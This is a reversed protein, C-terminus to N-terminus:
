KPPQSRFLLPYVARRDLAKSCSEAQPLASTVITPLPSLSLKGTEGQVFKARRAALDQNSAAGSKANKIPICDTSGLLLLLDADTFEKSKLDHKFQDLATTKAARDRDGFGRVPQLDENTPRLSSVAPCAPCPKPSATIALPTKSPAFKLTLGIIVGAAGLALLVILITSWRSTGEQEALIRLIEDAKAALAGDASPCGKEQAKSKACENLDSETKDLLQILSQIQGPPPPNQIGLPLLSLLGPIAAFIFAVGFRKPPADMIEEGQRRRILTAEVLLFAGASLFAVDLLLGAPRSLKMVLVVLGGSAISLILSGLFAQPSEYSYSWDPSLSGDLSAWRWPTYEM